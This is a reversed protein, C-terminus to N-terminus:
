FAQSYQSIGMKGSNLFLTNVEPKRIQPSWAGIAGHVKTAGYITSERDRLLKYIPDRVGKGHFFFTKKAPIRACAEQNTPCYM